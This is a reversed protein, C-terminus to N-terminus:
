AKGKDEPNEYLRPDDKTGEPLMPDVKKKEEEKTNTSDM